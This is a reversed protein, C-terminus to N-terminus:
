RKYPILCIIELRDQTTNRFQHMEMPKIFLFDGQKFPRDGNETTATGSGSLIFVEHEWDHKHYPTHGSPSINFVRMAFNQAGDQNSILWRITTDKVGDESPMEEAVETYHQHKMEGGTILLIAGPYSNKQLTNHQQWGM